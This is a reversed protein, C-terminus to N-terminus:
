KKKQRKVVKDLFSNGLLILTALYVVTGCVVTLILAALITGILDNIIKGSIAMLICGAVVSIINRKNIVVMFSRSSIICISLVLFESIVTTFAAGNYGFRPIIWINLVFNVFAATGTAWLLVRDNKQPLLICNQYFCALVAFIIAVCLMKLASAGEVYDEGSLIWIIKKCTIFLGTAVPPLICIILDMVGSVCDEYEKEKNKGLLYSFRPLTVMVIANMIQKIVMYIKTAVSYVGVDYDSKFFGLMTIDTNIYITVAINNVFLMLMPKVHEKVHMKLTFRVKAYKRVYFINLINGGAAAIVTIAAYKIYDNKGKILLFMLILSLLQMYVYKLTIYKYDEFIGNLWDTGITSLIITFSLILLIYRNVYLKKVSFILGLLFIYSISTTIMSLSFVQNVFLHIKRDEKIRAGERIAYTSIGFQAILSFYSIVSTCFNYRGYNVVGLVNTIYPVTILPFIVSCVYKIVNLVANSKLTRNM